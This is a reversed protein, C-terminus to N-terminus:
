SQTAIRGEDRESGAFFRGHRAARMARSHLRVLENTVEDIIGSLSDDKPHRNLKDHRNM